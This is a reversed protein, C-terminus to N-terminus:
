QPNQMWQVNEKLSKVSQEALHVSELKKKGTFVLAGGAATVCFGVIAYCAWLPLAPIGEHLGHVLMGALVVAGVFGLGLGVSMSLGADRAKRLDERLEVKFLALQQKMLEQADAIAGTVLQTMTPETGPPSAVAM